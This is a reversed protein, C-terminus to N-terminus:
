WNGVDPGYWTVKAVYRYLYLYRKEVTWTRDGWSYFQVDKEYEGIKDHHYKITYEYGMKSLHDCFNACRHYAPSGYWRPTSEEVFFITRMAFGDKDPRYQTQRKSKWNRHNEPFIDDYANALRAPNRKARVYPSNKGSVEHAYFQRKERTTRPYRLWRRRRAAM